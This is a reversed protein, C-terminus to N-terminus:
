RVEIEQRWTEEGAKKPLRVNLVGQEYAAEIAEPNIKQNLQFRREFNRPKYEFRRWQGTAQDNEQYKSVSVKLIDDQISLQFDSKEYGPVFLMLQYHDDHEEVNAAPFLQRVRSQSPHQFHRWRRHLPHRAKAQLFDHSCM